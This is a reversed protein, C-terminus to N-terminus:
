MMASSTLNLHRRQDTRRLRVVAFFAVVSSPGPVSLAGSETGPDFRDGNNTAGPLLQSV